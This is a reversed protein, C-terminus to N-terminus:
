PRGSVITNRAISFVSFLNSTEDALRRSRLFAPMLSASIAAIHEVRSVFDRWSQDVGTSCQAKSLSSLQVASGRTRGVIFLFVAREHHACVTSSTLHGACRGRVPHRDSTTMTVATDLLTPIAANWIAFATPAVIIAVVRVRAFLCASM